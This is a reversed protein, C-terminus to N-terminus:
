PGLVCYPPNEAEWERISEYLRTERFYASEYALRLSRELAEGRVEMANRAALTRRLAFSLLEIIDHGCSVQWPDHEPSRLSEIGSQIISEDLHHKTSKNKVTTILNEVIVNLDDPTTFKNYSLDEFTLGLDRRLSFWRLYGIAM